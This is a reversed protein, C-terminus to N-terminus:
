SGWVEHPIVGMRLLMSFLLTVKEYKEEFNVFSKCIKKM